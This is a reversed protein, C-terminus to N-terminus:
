KGARDPFLNLYALGLYEHIAATMDTLHNGAPFFKDTTKKGPSRFDAPAPVPQLGLLHFIQMARPLHSASTVLLFPANQVLPKVERANGHTDLARTEAILQDPPVGLSRALAVMRAGVDNGGSMILTPQAQFLRFLRIGELVRFASAEDLQSTPPANLSDRRDSSLVVIYKIEKLDQVQLLPQYQNELHSLLASPLPGTSFLFFLSTGLFLWVWGSRKSKGPLLVRLLGFCLCLLIVTGPALLYGLCKKFFFFIPM